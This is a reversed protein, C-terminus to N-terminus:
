FLQAFFRVLPNNYSVDFSVLAPLGAQQAPLPDRTRVLVTALTKDTTVTEPLGVRPAVPPIRRIELVKGRVAETADALLIEAEANLQLRHVAEQTVRAEVLLDDTTTGQLELLPQGAKVFAKAEVFKQSLSCDCPSRIDLASQQALLVALKRQMNTYEAQALAIERRIDNPTGKDAESGNFFFDNGALKKNSNAESVFAEAANLTAKAQTYQATAEELLKKTAHGKAFLAEVRELNAQEKVIAAQAVIVNAKKEDHQSDATKRYDKFFKEISVLHEEL